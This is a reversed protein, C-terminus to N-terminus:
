KAGKIEDLPIQGYTNLMTRMGDMELHWGTSNIQAWYTINNKHRFHFMQQDLHRTVNLPHRLNVFYGYQNLNIFHHKLMM